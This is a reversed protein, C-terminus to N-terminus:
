EGSCGECNCYTAAIEDLEDHVAKHSVNYYSGNCRIVTDYKGWYGQERMGKVSGTVDINPHASHENGTSGNEVWAIGTRDDRYLEVYESIQKILWKAM